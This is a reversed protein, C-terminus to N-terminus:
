ETSLQNVYGPENYYIRTVGNNAFANLVSQRNAALPLLVDIGRGADHSVSTGGDDFVGDGNVRAVYYRKVTSDSASSSSSCVSGSPGILEMVGVSAM